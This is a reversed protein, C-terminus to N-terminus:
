EGYDFKSSDTVQVPSVPREATRLRGRLSAGLQRASRSTRGTGRGLRISRGGSRRWSTSPRRRRRGPRRGPRSADPRLHERRGGGRGVATRTVRRSRPAPRARRRGREDRCRGATSPGNEVHRRHRARDGRVGEVMGRRAVWPGHVLHGGFAVFCTWLFQGTRPPRRRRSATWHTPWGSATSRSRSTPPPFPSPRFRRAAAGARWDRPQSPLGATAAGARRRRRPATSPRPLGPGALVDGTPRRRRERRGRRAARRDRGGLHTAVAGRRAGPLDGRRHGPQGDVRGPRRRRSGHGLAELGARVAASAAPGRLPRGAGVSSPLSPRAATGWAARSLSAEWIRRDALLAARGARTARARGPRRGGTPRTARAPRGTSRLAQGVPEGQAHERLLSSGAGSPWPGRRCAARPGPLGGALVM